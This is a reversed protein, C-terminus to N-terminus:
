PRVLLTSVSDVGGFGAMRLDSLIDDGFSMPHTAGLCMQKPTGHLGLPSVQAVSCHSLSHMCCLWSGTSTSCPHEQVQTWVLLLALLLLWQFGWKFSEICEERKSGFSRVSTWMLQACYSCGSLCIVVAVLWPRQSLVAVSWVRFLLLWSALWGAAVDINGVAKFKLQNYYVGSCLLQPSCWLGGGAVCQIM